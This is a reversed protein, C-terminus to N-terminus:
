NEAQAIATPDGSACRERFDADSEQDPYTELVELMSCLALEMNSIERESWVEYGLIESLEESM